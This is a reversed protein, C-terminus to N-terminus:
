RQVDASAPQCPRDVSARDAHQDDARSKSFAIMNEALQLQSAVAEQLVGNCEARLREAAKVNDEATTTTSAYQIVPKCAAFARTFREIQGELEATKEPVDKKVKNLGELVSEASDVTVKLLRANGADTTEVLLEFAAARYTEARRATRAVLTTSTDIRRVIDSYSADLSSMKAAIYSVLAIMVAGLVATILGIKAPMRLNNFLSMM